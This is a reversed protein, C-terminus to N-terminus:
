QAGDGVRTVIVQIGRFGSRGLGVECNLGELVMEKM